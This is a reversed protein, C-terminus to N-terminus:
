TIKFHELQQGRAALEDLADPMAPAAPAPPEEWPPTDAPAPASQPSPPAPRPKPQPPPTPRPATQKPVAGVALQVRIPTGLEKATVERLVSLVTESDLSAKVFDNQCMVTLVGDAVLGDAMNLFVRDKVSLRGKYQDILRAWM